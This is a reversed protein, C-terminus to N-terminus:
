EFAVEMRGVLIWAGNGVRMIGDMRYVGPVSPIARPTVHVEVSRTGESTPVFRFSAVDNAVTTMDTSANCVQVFATVGPIPVGDSSEVNLFVTELPEVEESSFDDLSFVRTDTINDLDAAGYEGTKATFLTATYGEVVTPEEEATFVCEVVEDVAVQATTTTTEVTTSVSPDTTTAGGEPDTTTTSGSDGCGAMVIAVALVAAGSLGVVRHNGDFGTFTRM